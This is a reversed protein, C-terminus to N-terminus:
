SVLLAHEAAFALAEDLKSPLTRVTEDRGAAGGGEDGASVEGSEFMERLSDLMAARDRTGDALLLMARALEDDFRVNVHRQCAVMPGRALQTRALRSVCPREGIEPTFDFPCAHLEVLDVAYMEHLSESLLRAHEARAAGGAGVGARVRAADLLEEFGVAQPWRESLHLLAAKVLPHDTTVTGGNTREFKVAVGPSLDPAGSAPKAHTAAFLRSVRAPDPGGAPAAGRLCLLTQRFQRCKLFDAYQERLVVEAGLRAVVARVEESFMQDQTEFYDAETLYELGHRAAHEAFQHFYVPEQIEALDDHYLHEDSFKAVRAAEERLLASYQRSAPPGAGVLAAMARAQEIRLRPDEINRVHFLMMDRLVRHVHGGPHTNYSVYAVGQPALHAGCVALLRDRVHAPVWSYVGHAIVYDFVGFEEPVDEIGMHLLRLNQLGLDAALARGSALPRAALDVGVFEGEPYNFALPILNSGDGCGLELVRCRAVPAPEMGYLTALAALRGPHTQPTPHTGYFVEDYPTM